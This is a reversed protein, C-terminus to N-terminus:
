NISYKIWRRGTGIRKLLAKKCLGRLIAGAQIRSLGLGNRGILDGISTPGNDKIHQIILSEYEQRQLGKLVTARGRKRSEDFYEKGLLYLTGNGSGQKQLYGQDTLDMACTRLAEKSSFILELREHITEISAIEMSRMKWLLLYERAELDKQHKEKTKVIFRVWARDKVATPLALTVSTPTASYEPQGKGWHLLQSFLIDTGQRARQVYRLQQLTEALLRNRTVSNSILINDSTIGPLFSGPNTIVIKDVYHKIYVSGDNRYDRHTCANLVAEQIVGWSLLPVEARFMGVQMPMFSAFPELLIEIDRLTLLLGQLYSKDAIATTLDDQAYRLYRVESQPIYEKLVDTSALLVCCANTCKGERILSLKSLLDADALPHIFDPNRSKLVVRLYGLAQPDLSEIGYPSLGYSWDDRRRRLLMEEYKPQTMKVSSSGSRIYAVGCALHPARPSELIRVRVGKAEGHTWITIEPILREETSDRICQAVHRLTSDSVDQGRIHGKPDIGFYVTGGKHNAFACCDNVAEKEEATSAKLEIYESEGRQIETLEDDSLSSTGSPYM